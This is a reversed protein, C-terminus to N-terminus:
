HACQMAQDRAALALEASLLGDMLDCSPKGGGALSTLFESLGDLYTRSVDFAAAETQVASVGRADARELVARDLDWVLTGEEGVLEYRRVRRRSVYDLNITVLPPGQTGQLLLCATDEAAIELRSFKGAAAHGLALEGLLWRAIDMEHILDLIVGGGTEARASYGRRYDTGPRWDPLWQGATFSARVVKGIAGEALLGRLRRLSPLLRLNCGIAVVPTHRARSLYARLEGAERASAVLPKEVYCPVGADLLPLLYELRTNSPTCLVALEPKARLAEEIGYVARAGEPLQAVSPSGPRLLVELGTGPRLALLNGAHRRGISGYGVILAQM